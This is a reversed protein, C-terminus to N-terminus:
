NFLITTSPQQIHGHYQYLVDIKRIRRKKNSQSTGIRVGDPILVSNKCDEIEICRRALDIHM